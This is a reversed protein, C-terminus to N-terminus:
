NEENKLEFYSNSFSQRMKGLSIMDDIMSQCTEYFLVLCKERGAILSNSWLFQLFFMVQIQPM